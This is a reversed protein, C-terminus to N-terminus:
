RCVTWTEMHGTKGTQVWHQEYKCITEPGGGGRWSHNTLQNKADLRVCWVIGAVSWVVAWVICLVMILYARVKGQGYNSDYRKWARWGILLPLGYAIAGLAALVVTWRIATLFLEM